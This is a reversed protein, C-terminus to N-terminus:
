ENKVAILELGNMWIRSEGISAACINIIYKEYPVWQRIVLSYFFAYAIIPQKKEEEKRNKNNHEGVNRLLCRRM